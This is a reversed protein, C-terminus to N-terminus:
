LSNARTLGGHGDLPRVMRVRQAATGGGVGTHQQQHLLQWAQQQSLMPGIHGSGLSMLGSSGGTLSSNRLDDLWPGQQEAAHHAAGGGYGQRVGPGTTYSGRAAAAATTAGLGMTGSGARSIGSSGDGTQRDTPTVIGTTNGSAGATWMGPAGSRRALGRDAGGGGYHGGLHLPAGVLPGAVGVLQEPLHGLTTMAHRLFGPGGPTGGPTFGHSAAHQGYLGSAGAGVSVSPAGRGPWIPSGAQLSSRGPMGFSAFGQPGAPPAAHGLTAQRSLMLAQSPGLSSIFLKILM